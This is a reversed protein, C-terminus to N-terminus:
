HPSPILLRRSLAFTCHHALVLCPHQGPGPCPHVQLVMALAPAGHYGVKLADHCGKAKVAEAVCGLAVEAATSAAAAAASAHCRTEAM